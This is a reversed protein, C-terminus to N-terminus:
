VDQEECLKEEQAGEKRQEAVFTVHQEGRFQLGWCTWRM